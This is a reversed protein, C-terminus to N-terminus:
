YEDEEGAIRRAEIKEDSQIEDFCEECFYEREFFYYEQGKYIEAGCKGCRLEVKAEQPDLKLREAELDLYEM